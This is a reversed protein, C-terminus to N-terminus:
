LVLDGVWFEWVKAVKGKTSEDVHFSILTRGAVNAQQQQANTERCGHERM